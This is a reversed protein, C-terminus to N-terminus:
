PLIDRSNNGLTRLYPESYKRLTSYSWRQRRRDHHCYLYYVAVMGRVYSMRQHKTTNGSWQTPLALHKSSGRLSVYRTCFHVLTCFIISTAVKSLIKASVVANYSLVFYCIFSNTQPWFCLFQPISPTFVELELEECIIIHYLVRSSFISTGLPALGDVTM